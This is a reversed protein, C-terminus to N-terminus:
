NSTRPFKRPTLLTIKGSDMARVAAAAPPKCGATQMTAVNFLSNTTGVNSPVQDMGINAEIVLNQQATAQNCIFEIGIMSRTVSNSQVTAGPGSMEIGATTDRVANSKYSAGGFDVIGFYWDSVRNGGITVSPDLVTIGQGVVTVGPGPGSVENGTVEGATAFFAIGYTYGGYNQVSVYNYNITATVNENALIGTNDFDHVSCYRITVPESTSDSNEAWIGSGFGNNIQNRATVQSITGSAGSGYYIGALNPFGGLTNGSGDVIINSINVPGATVLVQAALQAGGLTTVNASMSGFGIIIAQDSNGDSVGRLDLPQAITVQEAYTGPCVLVTSGAPAAAVAASITSYSKLSPRCTGVAYSSAFLPQSGLLLFAALLSFSRIRSM